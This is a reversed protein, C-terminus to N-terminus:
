SNDLGHFTKDCGFRQYGCYGGEDRACEHHQDSRTWVDGKQNRDSNGRDAEGDDKTGVPTLQLAFLALAAHAAASIPALAVDPPLTLQRDHRREYLAAAVLM